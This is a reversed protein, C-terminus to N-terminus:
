GTYIKSLTDALIGKCNTREKEYVYAANMENDKYSATNEIKCTMSLRELKAAENPPNEFYIECENSTGGKVEMLGGYIKSPTCTKFNQSFCLTDTGCDIVKVKADTKSEQSSAQKQCGVIFLIVFFTILIFRRM